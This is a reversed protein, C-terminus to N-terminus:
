FNVLGGAQHHQQAKLIDIEKEAQAQTDVTFLPIGKYQPRPDYVTFGKETQAIDFGRYISQM